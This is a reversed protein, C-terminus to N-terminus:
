FTVNVGATYIVPLPGNGNDIGFQTSSGSFEPTYGSNRKWTKLNQINSFLRLSKINVKKLMGANFNYGIQLNRIRIFSGDEIGYTSPLRNIPRNSVAPEFNSTGAGNWRGLRFEPYNFRTFPLESSGWYRYIENGYVGQFDIGADFGKYKLSFSFGYMMDPTPNGIITRDTPDIKGDGNVDRYKLDGPEYEYGVVTPSGLKDAYSQYIGDVVYGYFYGIPFGEEVVNPREEGGFIRGDSPLAEVKNNMTTLNGSIVISLDKNLQQTWSSTLEIGSNRVNGINGLRNGTLNSFQFALLDTTLRNYYNAEVYLRNKLAYFEIGIEKAKIKEWNLNRDPEYSRTYSPVLNSGFLASNGATIAPFAPYRFGATNQVGLTGMSAKLKLFNFFNQKEMFAEKTIEWAAGISYFNNWTNSPFASTGDRRFSANFLYKGKYNYLGRALFAVNTREWQNDGIDNLRISSPDGFGSIAYWFRPDNPIPDVAPSQRVIGFLGTYSESITTFGTTLNIGHDGFKKKYSLVHDQQFKSWRENNQNVRTLFNFGSVFTSDLIPNYVNILPEYRRNELNSMDAYFTSRFNFDKLFTIDAYVSAVNRFEVRKEKDWKNELVMLPNQMQGGQIALDYYTGEENQIPTIPLIRRADFLLGNAESYPLKQRMSNLTFGVKINKSIKLEDNINIFMRTLKERKVVGEDTTYGVGMYFRNKETSATISVNNTNFIGTRTMADIWDTNGTWPTYDFRENQPVGNNAQEEDWLTKFGAADVMRIRDVLRKAGFTSNFNVSMQGAKAKKTTIVIAGTAGRVGFIALSSPDKLIEMSEIDNPNLFDINDNLIGDIVFLPSVQGLSSTGRLRIDPAAGPTGNNVIYLGAVKGQLSSIPNVNPKDAVDKGAVKVISGTLDRKSATGYGIVVVENIDKSSVALTINIETRGNVAIEQTLYGVSSFVLTAGNPVTISYSGAADTAVGASSGKVRITVGPLPEGKDDRVRGTVKVDNVFMNKQSIVVLNNALLRYALETNSLIGDLVETVPTNQANITVKKSATVVDDNYLFRYSSRKEIQRLATKLEAADLKLTIKDQSYTKASVHLGALFLFAIILKMTLLLKLMGKQRLAPLRKTKKMYKQKTLYYFLVSKRGAFCCLKPKNDKM